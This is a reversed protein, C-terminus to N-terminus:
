ALIREFFARYQAVVAQKTFDQLYRREGALAVRALAARDLLASRIIAALMVPQQLPALFGTVGEDILLRPGDAATAVVPRRHAWAELIVNGLPEHRAPHVFLDATAMLDGVDERWGLFRVRPKVGFHVAQAELAQREPGVGALLLYVDPLHSLAELLQDFGKNSHLRGLALLLPAGEPVYFDSRPLARGPTSDVFNPLYVARDAPWGEQILYDVIAATDGVLYDCGRYYKLDYYGGLRAVRLFKHGALPSKPAMLSARSMWTFVIDPAFERLQQRFGLRTVLDLRTGFPLAHLNDIGAQALLAQRRDDKRILVCQEIGSEGLAPVLREFFREAGGYQAGALAQLVRM